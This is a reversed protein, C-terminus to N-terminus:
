VSRPIVLVSIASWQDAVDFNDGSSVITSAPGLVLPPMSDYVISGAAVVQSSLGLGPAWNWIGTAPGVWGNFGTLRAVTRGSMTVTLYINRAAVAASFLVQAYIALIEWSTAAPVTATWQAGAVPSTVPIVAPAPVTTTITAPIALFAGAGLSRTNTVEGSALAIVRTAGNGSGQQVEVSVVIEGDTITGASVFVIFGIIWGDTLPSVVATQVGAGTIVMIANIPVVEGDVRMLRGNFQLTASPDTSNANLRLFDGNMVYPGPASQVMSYTDEEDGVYHPTKLPVRNAM